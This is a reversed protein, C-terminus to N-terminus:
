FKERQERYEVAKLRRFVRRAYGTHSLARCSNEMSEFVGMIENLCERAQHLEELSHTAGMNAVSCKNQQMAYWRFLFNAASIKKEIRAITVQPDTLEDLKKLATSWCEWGEKAHDQLPNRGYKFAYTAAVSNPVLGAKTAAMVMMIVQYARGLMYHWYFIQTPRSKNDDIKGDDDMIRQSLKAIIDLCDRVLQEPEKLHCFSPYQQRIQEDDLKTEGAEVLTSLTELNWSIRTLQYRVDLSIEETMHYLFEGADNLLKLAVMKKQTIAKAAAGRLAFQRLHYGEYLLFQDQEMLGQKEATNGNNETPESPITKLFQEVLEWNGIVLACLARAFGFLRP